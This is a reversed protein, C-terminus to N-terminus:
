ILNGYDRLYKVVTIERHKKWLIEVNYLIEMYDMVNGYYIWLLDVIYDM